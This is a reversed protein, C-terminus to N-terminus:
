NTSQKAIQLGVQENTTNMKNKKYKPQAMRVM